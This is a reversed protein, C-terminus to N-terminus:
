ERWPEGEGTELWALFRAQEEPSALEDAGELLDAPIERYPAPAENGDPSM